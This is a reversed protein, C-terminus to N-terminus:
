KIKKKKFGAFAVASLVSAFILFAVIGIEKENLFRGEEHYEINSLNFVNKKLIVSGGKYSSSPEGFRWPSTDTTYNTTDLTIQSSPNLYLTLEIRYEILAELFEDNENKPAAKIGEGEINFVWYRGKYQAPEGSRLDVQYHKKGDIDFPQPQIDNEGDGDWDLTVDIRGGTVHNVDFPNYILDFELNEAEEPIFVRHSQDTAFSTSSLPNSGNTLQAWEGRWSTRLTDTKAKFSEQGFVEKYLKLADDVSAEPNEKRIKELILAVAVAKRANVLGYGQAYDFEKGNLGIDKEEPVGNNESYPILDATMKLIYEIEHIRTDERKDWEKKDEGNYDEHYNSVRLSPAAQFMIAVLGSVHPTAMSTGSIAMYYMDEDVLQYEGLWTYRPRTAWIDVGPASVDLYTIYEGKKGRSSFNAMGKGDHTAAAVSIVSPIKSQQSTTDTHGDHNGEGSNMGAFVCVVNNEYTLKNCIVTIADQPDYDGAGGWSNSVVRINYPNNGPKSHEYVWELGELVAWYVPTWDGGVGILAAGPAVGRRRGGSADGNGAVIGAVHTGHGYSTDSNEMEIWPDNPGNKHKNMILKEGYDLDPHQGDIGTDVIAVTVGSGDLGFLYSQDNFEFEKYIGEEEEVASTWVTTAGIVSTTEQLALENKMNYELWFTRSYSSLRFVSVVPGKAYVAPLAHYTYIPEIDLAKMVDLDKELVKEGKFQVIIEIEERLDRKRLEKLLYSDIKSYDVEKLDSWLEGAAPVLFLFALFLSIFLPSFGTKKM